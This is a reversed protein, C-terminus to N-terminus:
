VQEVLRAEGGSHTQIAAQKLMCDESNDCISVAEEAECEAAQRQISMVDNEVGRVLSRLGDSASAQRSDGLGSV